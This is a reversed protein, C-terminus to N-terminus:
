KIHQNNKKKYLYGLGITSVGCLSALVVGVIFIINKLMLGIKLPKLLLEAGTESFNGGRYISFIPLM